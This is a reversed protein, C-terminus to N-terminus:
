NLKWRQRFGEETRRVALAHTLTVKEGYMDIEKSETDTARETAQSYSTASNSWGEAATPYRKGGDRGAAM